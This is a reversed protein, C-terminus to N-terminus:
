WGVFVPSRTHLSGAISSVLVKVALTQAVCLIFCAATYYVNHAFSSSRPQREQKPLSPVAFQSFQVSARVRFM